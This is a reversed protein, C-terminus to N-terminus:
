KLKIKKTQIIQSPILNFTGPITPVAIGMGADKVIWSSSLKLQVSKKIAFNLNSVHVEGLIAFGKPYIQAGKYEKTFHYYQEDGDAIITMELGAQLDVNSPKSFVAYCDLSTEGNINRTEIITGKIILDMILDGVSEDLPVQGLSNMKFYHKIIKIHKMDNFMM